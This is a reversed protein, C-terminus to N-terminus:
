PMQSSLETNGPPRVWSEVCLMSKLRDGSLSWQRKSVSGSVSALWPPGVPAEGHALEGAALTVPRPSVSGRDRQSFAIECALEEPACRAGHRDVPRLRPPEFARVALVPLLPALAKDDHAM